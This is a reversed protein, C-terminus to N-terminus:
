ESGLVMERPEKALVLECLERALSENIRFNQEMEKWVSEKEEMQKELDRFRAILRNYKSLLINYSDDGM